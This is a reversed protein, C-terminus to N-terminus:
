RRPVSLLSLAVAGSVLAAVVLLWESRTWRRRSSRRLLPHVRQRRRQYERYRDVYTSLGEGAGPLRTAGFVVVVVILIIVLEPLGLSGIALESLGLNGV